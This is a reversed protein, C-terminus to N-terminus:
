SKPTMFLMGACARFLAEIAAASLPPTAFSATCYTKEPSTAAYYWKHGQIIIGHLAGLENLADDVYQAELRTDDQSAVLRAPAVGHLLSRLM